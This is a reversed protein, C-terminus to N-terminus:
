SGKCTTSQVGGMKWVRCLCKIVLKDGSLVAVARKRPTFNVNFIGSRMRLSPRCSMYYWHLERRRTCCCCLCVNLTPCLPAIRKLGDTLDNALSVKEQTRARLSHCLLWSARGSMTTTKNTARHANKKQRRSSAVLLPLHDPSITEPRPDAKDGDASRFVKM